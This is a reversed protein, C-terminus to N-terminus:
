AQNMPFLESILPMLAIRQERKPDNVISVSSDNGVVMTARKELTYEQWTFGDISPDGTKAFNIWMSSITDALVPDITNGGGIDLKTNNFVYPIEAAHGCGFYPKASNGKGFLYMYTKGTGGAAIHSEATKIAPLRFGFDGVMDSKEWLGPHQEAYTDQPLHASKLYTDVIRKANPSNNSIATTLESIFDYYKAIRGEDTDAYMSNIFYRMEDTNTGVLVDVDKSIGDAIAQYPNEPIPTGEGRLPQTNKMTLTTELEVILKELGNNPKIPHAIEIPVGTDAVMAKLLDEKSLAMLDDMTKSDTVKLLLEAKRMRKQDDPTSSFSADGSELIARHFLGKADECSLLIGCLGGGASEGFITVDQPNGGFSEINNQVWKLAAICDLLGLYPADPFAEGGEVDSFDIFGMSNIRYNFSVVIIDDDKAALYQGDYGPDSSGGAMYGGGHIFVMVTKGPKELDQTWVNLTLCDEGQPNMSAPETNSAPQLATHGLVAAEFVSDATTEPEQPAKWRLDGVPQKAFPIGKFTVVGTDTEYTGLFTGNTCVAVPRDDAGSEVTVCGATVLILALLVEALLVGTISKWSTM